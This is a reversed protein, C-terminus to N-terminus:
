SLVESPGRLSSTRFNTQKFEPSDKSALSGDKLKILFRTFHEKVRDRRVTDGCAPWKGERKSPHTSVKSLVRYPNRRM